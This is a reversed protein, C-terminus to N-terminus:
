GLMHTDGCISIAQRLDHPGSAAVCCTGHPQLTSHPISLAQKM